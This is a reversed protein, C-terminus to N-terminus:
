KRALVQDLSKRTTAPVECDSAPYGVPILCFARENAPRELIESLFQMPAPTHTLTALGAHHLAALLFGVAIGVSEVVYYHRDGVENGHRQAFVAILAPAIELFPKDPGTGLPELADLWKRSAAGAYFAREEREAAARIRSKVEPDTILVFTWPQRNAGSPSQAAAEICTTVVDIPIPEDSFSRVSRRARMTELFRGGRERMAGEDFRQFILPQKAAATPETV